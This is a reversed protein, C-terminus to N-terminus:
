CVEQLKDLINQLKKDDTIFAADDAYSLNNLNQGSITIVPKNKVGETMMYNVSCILHSLYYCVDKKYM